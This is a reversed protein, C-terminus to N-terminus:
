RIWVLWPSGCLRKNTGGHPPYKGIFTEFDVSHIAMFTMRISHSYLNKTGVKQAIIVRIWVHSIYYYNSLYHWETVPWNLRFTGWGENLWAQLLLSLFWPKHINAIQTLTSMICLSHYFVTKIFACNEGLIVVVIPIQVGLSCYNHLFYCEKVLKVYRVDLQQQVTM